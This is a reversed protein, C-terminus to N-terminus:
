PEMFGGPTDTAVFSDAGVDKLMWMIWTGQRHPEHMRTEETLTQAAAAQRGLAIEAVTRSVHSDENVLARVLAVGIGLSSKPRTVAHAANSFIREIGHNSDAANATFWGHLPYAAFDVPNTNSCFLVRGYANRSHYDCKFV